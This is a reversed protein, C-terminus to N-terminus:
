YGVIDRGDIRPLHQGMFGGGVALVVDHVKKVRLKLEKEEVSTEHVEGPTPGFPEYDAKCTTNKPPLEGSQFYQRVYKATCSSPAALTCHGPSDQTLAVAGTYGKAMNIANRLPTVPDATNGLFLVPHSTNGEFPGPYRHLARVSYHICHLRFTAWIAGISPSLKVLRKLHKAFADRDVFSQDDGDTCAVALTADM